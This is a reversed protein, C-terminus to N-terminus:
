NLIGNKELIYKRISDLAHLVTIKRIRDRNGVNRIEKVWSKEKTAFGLFVLGVPKEETGGDPGAIGTISVALEIDSNKVLGEAMEIATEKSVAGYIELTDKRVGLLEMKSENSYTVLGRSFTASISPIDTLTKALLGGTCSEATGIKVNNNILMKATVEALSNEDGEGYIFKGLRNRIEEEVPVILSIAEKEDKGRGTIRLVVEGLQAYPAITPNTQSDILDSLQDDLSSEGIGFFRLVKSRLVCSTKNSIHPLVGNRFMPKMERPPGPLMIVIKDNKDIICGPATGNDNQLAISTEPLYTQKKNNETMARNMKEFYSNLRKLSEENVALKLGLTNAITEKTLDDKTPGLGGTFIIMDSRKLASKFTDELRKPNDGVVTHYFVNIGLNSLEQSIYQANTNAIQGLLLETGVAIIEANM